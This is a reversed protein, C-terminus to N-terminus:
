EHDEVEDDRVLRDVRKVFPEWECTRKKAVESSEGEVNWEGRGLRPLLMMELDGVVLAGADDPPDDVVLLEERDIPDPVSDVPAVHRQIMTTDLLVYRRSLEVAAHTHECQEIGVLRGSGPQHTERVSCVKVEVGLEALGRRLGEEVM